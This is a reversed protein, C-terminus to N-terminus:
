KTKFVLRAARRGGCRSATLRARTPYPAAHPCAGKPGPGCICVPLPSQGLVRAEPVLRSDGRAPRKGDGALVQVSGDTRGGCGSGCEPWQLPPSPPWQSRTVLNQVRKVRLGALLRCEM